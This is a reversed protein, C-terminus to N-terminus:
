RASAELTVRMGTGATVSQAVSRWGAARFAGVLADPDAGDVEIRTVGDARREVAHLTADTPLLATVGALTGTLTQGALYPRMAARLDANRRITARAAIHPAAERLSAADRLGEGFTLGAALLATAGPIAALLVLAPAYSRPLRWGRFLGRAQDVLSPGRGDESM